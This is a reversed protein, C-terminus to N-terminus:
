IISASYSATTSVIETKIYTLKTCIIFIIIIFITIIYTYTDCKSNLVQLKKATGTRPILYIFRTLAYM